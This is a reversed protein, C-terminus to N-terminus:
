KGQPLGMRRLIEQFRPEKRIGDLLPDPLFWGNMSHESYAKEFYQLAREREGLGEYAIAICEPPAYKLRLLEQLVKHGEQRAGTLGLGHALYALEITNRGWVAAAEQLAEMAERPRGTQLYVPAIIYGGTHNTVRRSYRQNEIEADAYRRDLYLKWVVNAAYLGSLPEVERARMAETVAERTRGLEALYTAYAHHAEGLNPNLQIARTYLQEAGAWDWEYNTKVAALSVMAEALNPDLGLAKEAAARALPAMEKLPLVGWSALRIYTDALGAWARSYGPDIRIAEEFFERAKRLAKEGSLDWWYRGRLYAEYAKPDVARSTNLLRQEGPTLKVRIEQAVAKAVADQFALVESLNGEYREAWLHKQTAAAILQATIRVRDHDRTVAGELLADVNLERAIEPLSKRTGKYRIVSTRSVVRLSRIKALSTIMEDTLGAAFYDQEPDNSLNELPLVALSEIPKARGTHLGLFLLCVALVVGAAMLWRSVRSPAAETSAPAPAAVEAPELPAIFRYGRRPVTEIFRPQDADDKLADRIQRISKNIGHEFDVFTDDSWIELRIADRTVLQGPRSALFELLRLAQPALRVPRGLRRLEKTKLDVEFSSFRITGPVPSAM